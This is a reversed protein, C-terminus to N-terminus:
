SRLHRIVRTGTEEAVAALDQPFQANVRLASRVSAPDDERIRDARLGIANVVFAPPGAAAVARRLSDRGEEADLGIGGAQGPRRTGRVEFGRAAELAAFVTQGLM